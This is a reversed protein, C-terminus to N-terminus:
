EWEELGLMKPRKLVWEGQPNQIHTIDLFKEGDVFECTIIVRQSKCYGKRHEYKKLLQHEELQKTWNTISEESANLRESTYSRKAFYERKGKSISNYEGWLLKAGTSLKQHNYIEFPLYIERKDNVELKKHKEALTYKLSDKSLFGKNLLSRRSYSVINKHLSLKQGIVSNALKTYGKKSQYTYDLGLIMKENFSLEKNSLITAPIKLLLQKKEKSNLNNYM